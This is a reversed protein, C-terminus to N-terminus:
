PNQNSGLKLVLRLKTGPIQTQTANLEKVPRGVVAPNVVVLEQSDIQADLLDPDLVGPEAYGLERLEMHREPLALIAFKDGAELALDPDPAILKGGRKVRVAAQKGAIAARVERVTKGIVEESVIEYARVVPVGGRAAKGKVDYGKKRAYDKAAAALDIKLIGPLFKIIMILGIMGFIYTIAYGVSINAYLTDAIQGPPITAAGTEIAAQAGVLTPTSTLAGALIGAALGTDLDFAGALARTVAVATVAVVVSLALYKLGDDMMVSFFRPGAQLGVAYIFMTFGITGLFPEAEFGFHGFVLAIIMVGGTAGLEFGRLNVRGILYGLGVVTFVVLIKSELFLEYLNIEM